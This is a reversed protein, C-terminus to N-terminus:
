IPRKYGSTKSQGCDNGLGHSYALGHCHSWSLETLASHTQAGYEPCTMATSDTGKDTRVKHKHGAWSKIKIPQTTQRECSNQIQKVNQKQPHIQRHSSTLFQNGRLEPFINWLSGWLKAASGEAWWEHKASSKTYLDAKHELTLGSNSPAASPLNRLLKAKRIIFSHNQM